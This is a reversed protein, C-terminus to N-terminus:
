VIYNLLHITVPEDGYYGYLSKMSRSTLDCLTVSGRVQVKPWPERAGPNYFDPFKGNPRLFNILDWATRETIGHPSADIATMIERSLEDYRWQSDNLNDRALLAIWDNMATLRIEPAIPHNTAVLVDRRRHRQPAFYFPGPCNRDHWSRNIYGGDSFDARSFDEPPRSAAAEGRVVSWLKGIRGNLLDRLFAAVGGALGVLRLLRDGKFAMWLWENWRTIYEHPLLYDTGRAVLGARPRPSGYRRRMRRIFGLQPLRGRYRLPVWAYYPFREGAALKRGAEVVFAEGHMDAVPYIWSVGRQASRIRGVVESATRCSQICERVLPLSNFGPREPACFRSPFMNVGAAVGQANMGTVSGIFGPATQSVFAQGPKGDKSVPRYVILCATEQFVNATPFMFDRGFFSRGGAAEGGLYFANCGIPTRLMEPRIGERAFLTGSFVHSLLADFGFNLTILDELSVDRGRSGAACGDAIGRLEEGFEGPIDPLMKRSVGTAIRIILRLLTRSVKRPASAHSLFSFLVNHLFDHTMRFVEERALLGLLFGMQYSNGEVYYAKKPRSSSGIRASRHEAALGLCGDKSVCGKVAFGDREFAAQLLARRAGTVESCSAASEVSRRGAAPIADWSMHAARFTERETDTSTEAEDCTGIAFICGCLLQETM